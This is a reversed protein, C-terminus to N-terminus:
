FADNMVEPSKTIIPNYPTNKTSLTKFFIIAKSIKPLPTLKARMVM